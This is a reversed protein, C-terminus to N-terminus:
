KKKKLAALLATATGRNPSGEPAGAVYAELYGIAKPVDTAVALTGLYYQTEINAPDLEAAKTFAALADADKAANSAVVGLVFQFKGDLPFSAAVGNLLAYAAPAKGEDGLLAALALYSDSTMPGLEIAKRFEAEAEVPDKKMVALFGLNHHAQALGPKEVVVQRFLAEAKANDGAKMAEIAENYAKGLAKDKEKQKAVAEVEASSTPTQQGAPAAVLVVPPLESLADGGTWTELNHPKYGAKTFTVSWQGSLLGVRVWGGRKDTKTTRVIKVRSEGKFVFEVSVDAVPQGNADVCTGRISSGAGQARADLPVAVVAAAVILGLLGPRLRLM